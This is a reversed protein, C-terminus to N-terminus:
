VTKMKRDQIGMEKAIKKHESRWQDAFEKIKHADAYVHRPDPRKDTLAEDLRAMAQLVERHLRDLKDLRKELDKAQEDGLTRHFQEHSAALVALAIRLREQQARFVKDDYRWRTGPGVMEDTIKRVSEGANTCMALALRQDDSAQMVLTRRSDTASSDHGPVPSHTGSGHQALVRPAAALSLLAALLATLRRM